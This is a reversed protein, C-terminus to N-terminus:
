MEQVGLTCAIRSEDPEAVQTDNNSWHNLSEIDALIGIWRRWRDLFWGISRLIGVDGHLFGIGRLRGLDLPQPKSMWYRNIENRFSRSSARCARAGNGSCEEAALRLQAKAEEPCGCSVPPTATRERFADQSSREGRNHPFRECRAHKACV